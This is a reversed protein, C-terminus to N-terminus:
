AHSAPSHRVSCRWTVPLVDTWPLPASCACHCVSTGGDAGGVVQGEWEGARTGNGGPSTVTPTSSGPKSHSPTLSPRRVAMRPRCQNPAHPLSSSPSLHTIPAIVSALYLLSCCTLLPWHLAAPTVSDGQGVGKVKSDRGGKVPSHGCGSVMRCLEELMTSRSDFGVGLQHIISLTICCLTHSPQGLLHTTLTNSIYKRIPLSLSMDSPVHNPRNGADLIPSM